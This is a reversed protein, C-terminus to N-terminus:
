TGSKIFSWDSPFGAEATATHIHAAVVSRAAGLVHWTPGETEGRAQEMMASLVDYTLRLEELQPV